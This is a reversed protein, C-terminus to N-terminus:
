FFQDGEPRTLGSLATKQKLRGNGGSGSPSHREHDIKKRRFSVAPRLPHQLVRPAFTKNPHTTKTACYGSSKAARRVGNRGDEGSGDDDGHAIIITAGFVYNTLIHGLSCTRCSVAMLNFMIKAQAAIKAACGFRSATEIAGVSGGNLPSLPRRTLPQGGWNISPSTRKRCAKMGWWCLHFATVISSKRRTCYYWPM